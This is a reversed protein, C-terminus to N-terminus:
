MKYLLGITWVNYDSDGLDGGGVKMYRQGELRAALGRWVYYQAGIGWTVGGASESLRASVGNLVVDDTTHAYYGGVKGYLSFRGNLPYSGIVTLEGLRAKIDERFGASESRVKGLDTFGLEASWHRAFQYGVFYKVASGHNECTPRGRCDYDLAQSQGLGFGLYIGRDITQTQMQAQAQALGACAFLCAGLAIAQINKPRKM